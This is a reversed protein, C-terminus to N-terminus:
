TIDPNKKYKKYLNNILKLFISIIVLGIVSLVPDANNAPGYYTSSIWYALFPSIVASIAFIIIINKVKKNDIFISIPVFPIFFFLIGKVNFVLQIFFYFPLSLLIAYIYKAKERKKKKQETDVETSSVIQQLIREKAYHIQWEEKIYNNKGIEDLIKGDLEAEKDPNNNLWDSLKKAINEEINKFNNQEM